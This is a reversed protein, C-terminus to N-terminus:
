MPSGKHSPSHGSHVSHAAAPPPLRVSPFPEKLANQCMVPGVGVDFHRETAAVYHHGAVRFVRMHLKFGERESKNPL